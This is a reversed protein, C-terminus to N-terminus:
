AKKRQRTEQQHIVELEALLPRLPFTEGIEETYRQLDAASFERRHRAYFARVSEQARKPRPSSPKEPKKRKAV